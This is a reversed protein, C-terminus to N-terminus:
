GETVLPASFWPGRNESFVKDARERLRAMDREFREIRKLQEGVPCDGIWVGEFSKIVDAQRPRPLADKM